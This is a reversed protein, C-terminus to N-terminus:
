TRKRLRAPGSQLVTLASREENTLERWQGKALDGLTVPGIAVRILRLVEVGLAELMRRIHRNRGEDLAIELWSNKAGARLVKASTVRLMDGDVSVGRLMRAVLVDDAVRDIQVHYTKRLHSEPATIGAAWESDNTLLLLGESAKDLRGVPAIFPLDHGALCSYVTARGQEDATSTVLGRPKNLMVYVRRSATVPAGDVEIRDEPNTPSEPDRRLAGNVRVRGSRVLEFAEARSCYGLKSLTRALGIRRERANIASRKM